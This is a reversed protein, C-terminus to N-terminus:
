ACASHMAPECSYVNANFPANYQPFYAPVPPRPSLAAVTNAVTLKDRLEQIKDQDYRRELGDVRQLIERTNNLGLIENNKFGLLTDYNNRDIAARTDYGVRDIERNTEFFYKDANQSLMWSSAAIEKRVDAFEKLNDRMGDWCYKPEEYHKQNNM